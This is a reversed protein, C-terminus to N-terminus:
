RPSQSRTTSSGAKAAGRYKLYEIVMPLLSV